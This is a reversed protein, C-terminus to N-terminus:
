RFGPWSITVTAGQSYGGLVLKTNPCSSAMSKIHSIADNVTERHLQLRSAAYNM